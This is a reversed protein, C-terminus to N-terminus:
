KKICVFITVNESNEECNKWRCNKTMFKQYFCVTKLTMFVEKRNSTIKIM